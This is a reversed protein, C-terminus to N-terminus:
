STFGERKLAHQILKDIMQPYTMGAAQASKWFGADLALDPLENVDIVYPIGDKLRIDVRGLDRLGVAHFTGEAASRVAVDDAPSLEAPIISPILNYYSSTEEWKSEYTLLRKLPNKIRSYDDEVIPLLELPDNGLMAIALERGAIFEEVLVPEEYTDLVTKVQRQLQAPTTVVSKLTIGISGDEEAPKVIVPFDLHFGAGPQEFVQCRPTPIGCAMLREKARPKDICLEVAEAPAGTHKFGHEELLRVVLAAAQNSGDFGDCNNFILTDAPSFDRLALALADLSDRVAILTTSYGLGVLIEYLHRSTAVTCQIALLDQSTGHRIHADDNYLLVIQTKDASMPADFPRGGKPTLNKKYLAIM